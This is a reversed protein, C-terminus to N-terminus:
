VGSSASGLSAHRRPARLASRRCVRVLGNLVDTSFREADELLVVLPAEAHQRAQACGTPLASAAVSRRTKMDAHWGALVSLDFACSGGTHAHPGLLQSVMSRM